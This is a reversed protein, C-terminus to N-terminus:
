WPWFGLFYLKAAVLAGVAVVIAITVKGSKRNRDNHNDRYITAKTATM